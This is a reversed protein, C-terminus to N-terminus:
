LREVCCVEVDHISRTWAELGQLVFEEDARGGGGGGGVWAVFFCCM